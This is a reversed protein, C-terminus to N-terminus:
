HLWSGAGSGGVMGKAVNGARLVMSGAGRLVV